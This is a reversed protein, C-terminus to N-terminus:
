SLSAEKKRRWRWRKEKKKRKKRKDEEKVQLPSKPCYPPSWGGQV